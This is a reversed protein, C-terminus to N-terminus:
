HGGPAQSVGTPESAITYRVTAQCRTGETVSRWATEADQVSRFPGLVSETGEVLREFEMTDYKGGVVWYRQAAKVEPQPSNAM